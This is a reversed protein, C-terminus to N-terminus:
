GLFTVHIPRLSHLGSWRPRALTNLAEALLNDGVLHLKAREFKLNLAAAEKSNGSLESDPDFGVRRQSTTLLRQPLRYAIENVLIGWAKDYPPPSTNSPLAGVRLDTFSRSGSVRRSVM